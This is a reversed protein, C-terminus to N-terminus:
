GSDELSEKTRRLADAIIAKQEEANDFAGSQAALEFALRWVPLCNRAIKLQADLGEANRRRLDFLLPLGGVTIASHWDIKDLSWLRDVADKPLLAAITRVLFECLDALVPTDDRAREFDATTMADLTKGLYPLSLMRVAVEDPVIAWKQSEVSDSLFAGALRHVQAVTGGPPLLSGIVEEGGNVVFAQYFIDEFGAAPQGSLFGSLLCAFVSELREERSGEGAYLAPKRLRELMLARQKGVGVSVRGRVLREALQMATLESDAAPAGRGGWTKALKELDVRVRELEALVAPRLAKAGVWYGEPSFFLRLAARGLDRKQRLESMLAVIQKATGPPYSLSSGPGKGDRKCPIYEWHRWYELRTRSPPELGPGLLATTEERLVEDARIQWRKAM